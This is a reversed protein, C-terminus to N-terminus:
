ANIVHAEKEQPRDKAEIVRDPVANVAFIATVTATTEPQIERRQQLLSWPNPHM